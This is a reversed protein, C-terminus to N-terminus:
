NRGDSAGSGQLERNITRELLDTSAALVTASRCHQSGAIARWEDCQDDSDLKLGSPAGSLPDEM